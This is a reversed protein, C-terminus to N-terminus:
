DFRGAGAFETELRDLAEAASALAVAELGLEGLFASLVLRNTADDDVLLARRGALPRQTGGPGAGARAPRSTRAAVGEAGFAAPLPLTVRIRTGAAAATDLTLTGGMAETLRRVITLGLGHGGLAQCGEAQEFAEFIRAQEAANMGMGTDEVTLLLPEPPTGALRLTVQGAGAAETGPTFKVANAVLNNMVQGLRQPDGLRAEAAGASAELAISLGKAEAVPRHQAVVREAVRDPRFAVRDFDLKGAEIKALDLIDDLLALLTNGSDMMTATMARNRPDELRRELMQAMGLLGNLPTRLEHSAQALYSNKAATAAEARAQAAEASRARETAAIEASVDRHTSVFGELTGDRLHVPRLSLAQWFTTGDSRRAPLVQRLAEGRAVAQRYRAQAAAPAETMMLAVPCRDVLGDREMGFLRAFVANAWRIRGGPGLSLVGEGVAMAVLRSRHAERWRALQRLALVMAPALLGLAIFIRAAGSSPIATAGAAGAAAHAGHGLGHAMGHGGGGPVAFASLHVLVPALAFLAAGTPVARRLPRDAAQMALLCLGMTAVTALVMPYGPLARMPLAPGAIAELHVLSVALGLGLAGAVRWLPRPARAAALMTATVAVVSFAATGVLGPLGMGPMGPYIMAAVFHAGWVGLGASLALRLVHGARLRPANRMDDLEAFATWSSVFSLALASLLLFAGSHDAIADQPEM